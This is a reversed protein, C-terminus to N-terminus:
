HAGDGLEVKHPIINHKTGGNFKGVTIVIPDKTTNPM